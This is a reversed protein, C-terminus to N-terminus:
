EKIRMEYHLICKSSINIITCFRCWIFGHYWGCFIDSDKDHQDYSIVMFMRWILIQPHINITCASHISMWEEWPTLKLKLVFVRICTDKYQVRPQHIKTWRIGDQSQSKSYLSHRLTYPSLTNHIIFSMELIIVSCLHIYILSNSNLIWWVLHILGNLNTVSINLTLYM